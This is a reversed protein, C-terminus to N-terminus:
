QHLLKTIALGDYLTGLTKLGVFILVHKREERIACLFIKVIFIWTVSGVRFNIMNQTFSLFKRYFRCISGLLSAFFPNETM